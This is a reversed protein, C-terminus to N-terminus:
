ISGVCQKFDTHRLIIKFISHKLPIFGYILLMLLGSIHFIDEFIFLLIYIYVFVYVYIFKCLSTLFVYLLISM